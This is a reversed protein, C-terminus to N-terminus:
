LSVTPLITLLGELLKTKTITNDMVLDYRYKGPVIALTSASPITLTLNNPDGDNLDIVIAIEFAVSSSYVKRAKCSFTQNSITIELGNGDFADIVISYDIGQDVYLNINTTM